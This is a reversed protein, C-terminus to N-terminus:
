YRMMWVAAIVAGAIDAVIDWGDFSRNPIFYLQVYEMAIGLIITLLTIIIVIKKIRLKALQRSWYYFGWFLVNFGFLIIHVVKDFHQIGFLGNGPVYSGPISLLIIILLTWALPFIRYSLIRQILAVM